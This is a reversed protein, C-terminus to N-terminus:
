QNRAYVTHFADKHTYVVTLLNPKIELIFRLMKLPAHSCGLLSNEDGIRLADFINCLVLVKWEIVRDGLERWEEERIAVNENEGVEDLGV